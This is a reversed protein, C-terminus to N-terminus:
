QEYQQKYTTDLISVNHQGSHSVNNKILAAAVHVVQFDSSIFRRSSGLVNDAARTTWMDHSVSIFRQGYFYPQEIAVIQRISEVMNNFEKDVFEVFTECSLSSYYVVCSTMVDKFYDSQLVNFPINEYMIWKALKVKISEESQKMFMSVITSSTKISSRKALKLQENKKFQMYEENDAHKKYLYKKANSSSSQTCLATTWDRSTRTGVKCTVKMADSLCLLCIHKFGTSNIKRKKNVQQSQVESKQM